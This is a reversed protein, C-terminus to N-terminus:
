RPGSLFTENVRWERGTPPRKLIFYNDIWSFAKNKTVNPGFSGQPHDIIKMKRCEKMNVGATTRIKAVHIMSDKKSSLINASVM